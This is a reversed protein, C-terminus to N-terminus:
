AQPLLRHGTYRRAMVRVALERISISTGDRLHVRPGEQLRVYASLAARRNDEFAQKACSQCQGEYFNGPAPPLMATPPVIANCSICQKDGSQHWLKRLEAMASNWTEADNIREGPATGKLLAALYSAREEAARQREPSVRRPRRKRRRMEAPANVQDTQATEAVPPAIERSALPEPPAVERSAVPDGCCAKCPSRPKFLYFCDLPLVEGCSRCQRGGSLEAERQATRQERTRLRAEQERKVRDVHAQQWATRRRLQELQNM